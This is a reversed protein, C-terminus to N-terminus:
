LSEPPGCEWSNRESLLPKLVALHELMNMDADLQNALGFYSRVDTRTKPVPFNKIGTFMSSAAKYGDATITLGAFEVQELCFQLRKSCVAAGWEVCRNLLKGLNNKAEEKTKGWMLVDDVIRGYIGELGALIQDM